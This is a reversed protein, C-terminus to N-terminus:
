TLIRTLTEGESSSCVKGDHRLRPSREPPASGRAARHPLQHAAHRLLSSAPSSAASPPSPWSSPNSDRTKTVIWRWTQSKEWLMSM